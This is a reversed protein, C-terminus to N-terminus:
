LDSGDKLSKKKYEKKKILRKKFFVGSKVGRGTWGGVTGHGM